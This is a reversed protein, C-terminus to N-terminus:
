TLGPSHTRRHSYLGIRSGCHRGCEPCQIHPALPPHPQLGRGHRRQRRENRQQTREAEFHAAGQHCASRWGVRDAAANEFSDPDIKFNRLTTMAQDKFRKKQGGCTRRGESLQGYLVKKPLRTTPMRFVHGLWKLQRGLLLSEISPLGAHKLMDTHPVRDQWTLGLIKKICQMHFAELIKIHKRYLTFTESGYLLTSLCVARYVAVKTALRLNHNQVVQKCIRGFSASAKNIRRNVEEDISCNASLISGLYNFQHSIKLEAGGISMIPEVQPAVGSWQYMVETKNANIVLGLTNYIDYIVNLAKQLGEPSHSVLVCDDAYQLDTVKDHSIRPQAQLRRLNFLSGNLRYILGIGHGPSLRERFLATAAALYINFMIPAIVCGQKVGREVSFTATEESGIVVSAKMGDHFARTVAIFKDPCGFKQMIQWLIERNVTDFAKTIDIFALCLNQHQESCKEQLQRATFIMDTTGRKRRFGCQTEPCVVDVIYKNLRILLVKALVKGAIALLSIGHSNGFM